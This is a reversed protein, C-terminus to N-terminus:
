ACVFITNKKEDSCCCCPSAIVFLGHERSPVHVLRGPSFRAEIKVSFLCLVHAFQVRGFRDESVSDSSLKMLFRERQSQTQLVVIVFEDPRPSITQQQSM